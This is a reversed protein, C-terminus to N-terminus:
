KNGAVCVEKVLHDKMYFVEPTSGTFHKFEKIFHSQDFYGCNHIIDQWQCYPNVQKQTFAYNIRLVRAFYKPTMGVEKVFNRELSRRTISINDALQEININGKNAFIIDQAYAIPSAHSHDIRNAMKIFYHNLITTKTLDDDGAEQLQEKLRAGDNGMLADVPLLNNNFHEIPINYLRYIGQPRFSCVIVDIAKDAKVYFDEDVAHGSFGDSWNHINNASDIYQPKNDGLYIFLKVFGDPICKELAFGTPIQVITYEHIYPELELAPKYRAIYM